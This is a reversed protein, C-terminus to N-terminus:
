DSIGVTEEFGAMVNMCHVLQAAGCKGEKDAMVHVTLLSTPEDPTIRLRFVSHPLGAVLQTDWTSEEDGRVYFSRSYAEEYLDDIDEMRDPTAIAAMVTSAYVSGLDQEQALVAVEDLGLFSLLLQEDFPANTILTPSETLLGARILPGLAILALTAAPDPVSARDACVLPNNDM